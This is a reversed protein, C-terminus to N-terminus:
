RRCSAPREQTATAFVTSSGDRNDVFTAQGECPHHQTREPQSDKAGTMILTDLRPGLMNVRRGLFARKREWCVAEGGPCFFVGQAQVANDSRFPEDKV